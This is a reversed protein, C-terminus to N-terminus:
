SMRMALTLIYILASGIWPKCWGEYKYYALVDYYRILVESPCDVLAEMVESADEEIIRSHYVM